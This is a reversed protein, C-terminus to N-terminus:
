LALEVLFLYSQLTVTINLVLKQEFNEAIEHLMTGSTAKIRFRIILSTYTHAQLPTYRIKWNLRTSDLHKYMQTPHWIHTDPGATPQSKIPTRADSNQEM